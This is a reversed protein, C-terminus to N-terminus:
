KVRLEQRILDDPDIPPVPVNTATTACGQERWWLFMAWNAADVWRERRICSVLARFVDENPIDGADDWGTYSERVRKNCLREWAACAFAGHAAHLEKLEHALDRM